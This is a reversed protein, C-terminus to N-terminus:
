VNQVDQSTPQDSVTANSGPTTKTSKSTDEKPMAITPDGVPEGTGAVKLPAEGAGPSAVAPDGELSGDDRVADRPSNHAGTGDVTTVSLDEGVQILDHGKPLPVNINPYTAGKLDKKDAVAKDLNEQSDAFVTHEVGKDDTFTEQFM